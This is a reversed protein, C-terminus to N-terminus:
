KVKVTLTKTYKSYYTKKKVKKYARLKYYYIKGSKVKKDKYKTTNKNKITRICKFGKTKKTSRYIKYGQAVKNKKWKISVSKKSSVKLTVNIIKTNTIKKIEGIVTTNDIETTQPTTVPKDTNGPNGAAGPTSTVEPASTVEPVSTAGPTGTTEPVSTGEPTSTGEPAETVEPASTAEPAETVEPITPSTDEYNVRLDYVQGICGNVNTKVDIYYTGADLSYPGFQVGSALTGSSREVLEDDALYASIQWLDETIPKKGDQPKLNISVKGPKDLTYKYYLREYKEQSCGWYNQNVQLETANEQTTNLETEAWQGTEDNELTDYVVKLHYKVPVDSKEPYITILVPGYYSYSPTVIQKSSEGSYFREVSNEDDPDVWMSFGTPSNDVTTVEVHFRGRKTDSFDSQDIEVRYEDYYDTWTFDGESLADPYEGGVIGECLTNVPIDVPINTKIGSINESETYGVEEDAAQVRTVQGTYLMGNLILAAACLLSAATRVIKRGRNRKVLIEEKYKSM